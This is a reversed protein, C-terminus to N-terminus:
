KSGKKIRYWAMNHLHGSATLRTGRFKEVAGSAVLATIRRKAAVRTIGLQDAIEEGTSWGEGTPKNEKTKVAAELLKVWENTEKKTKM